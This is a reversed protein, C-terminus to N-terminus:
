WSCAVLSTPRKERWLSMCIPRKECVGLYTRNECVCLTLDKKVSLSHTATYQLINCYTTTHQTHQLTNCHHSCTQCTTRCVFGRVDVHEVGPERCGHAATHQLTHQPTNCHTATHQLTNYHTAAHQLTNSYTATVHSQKVRPDVCV